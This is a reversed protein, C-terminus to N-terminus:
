VRVKQIMKLSLLYVVWGISLKLWLEFSNDLLYLTDFLAVIAISNRTFVRALINTNHKIELVAFVGSYPFTVVIGSFASKFSLLVFSAAGAGLGKLAVPLARKAQSGESVRYRKLISMALLWALLFILNAELFSLTVQKVFIYGLGVYTATALLDATIIALSRKEYLYYVLWLFCCLLFTGVINSYGVTGHTAILGITIPLPLSYITSKLFPNKVASILAIVLGIAIASTSNLFNVDM